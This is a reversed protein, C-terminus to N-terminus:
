PSHQPTKHTPSMGRISSASPLATTDYRAADQGVHPLAAPASSVMDCVGILACGAGSPACRVQESNSSAQRMPTTAHKLKM